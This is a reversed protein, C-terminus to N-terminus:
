VQWFFVVFSFINSRRIIEVAEDWTLAASIRPSTCLYQHFRPAIAAVRRNERKTRDSMYSALAKVFLSTQNASSEWHEFQSIDLDEFRLKEIQLPCLFWSMMKGVLDTRAIFITTSIAIFFNHHSSSSSLVRM